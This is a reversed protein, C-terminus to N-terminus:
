GADADRRRGNDPVAQGERGPQEYGPFLRENEAMGPPNQFNGRMNQYAHITVPPMNARAPFEFVTHARLPWLWQSPGEM